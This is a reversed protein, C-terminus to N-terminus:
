FGFERLFEVFEGLEEAAIPRDQLMPGEDESRFESRVERLWDSGSTCLEDFTGIWILDQLGDLHERLAEALAGDALPNPEDATARIAKTLEPDDEEMLLQLDVAISELRAEPSAYWHFM